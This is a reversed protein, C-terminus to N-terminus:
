RRRQHDGDFKSFNSELRRPGSNPIMSPMSAEFREMRSWL